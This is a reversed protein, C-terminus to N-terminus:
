WILIGSRNFANTNGFVTSKAIGESVEVGNAYIKGYEFLEFKTDLAMLM